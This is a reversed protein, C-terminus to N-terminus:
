YGYSVWFDNWYQLGLEESISKILDERLDAWKENLSASSGCFEVSDKWELFQEKRTAYIVLGKQLILNMVSDAKEPRVIVVFNYQSTQIRWGTNSSIRIWYEPHNKAIEVIIQRLSSFDGSYYFLLDVSWEQYYTKTEDIVGGIEQISDSVFNKTENDIEPFGTFTVMFGDLRKEFASKEAITGKTVRVEELYFESNTKHVEFIDIAGSMIIKFIYIGNKIRGLEIRATAPAIICPHLGPPDYIQYPIILWGVPKLNGIPIIDLLIQVGGHRYESATYITISGGTQYDWNYNLRYSFSIPRHVGHLQFLQSSLTNSGPLPFLTVPLLTLCGLLIVSFQPRAERWLQVVNTATITKAVSYIRFGIFIILVAIIIQFAIWLYYSVYINALDSLYNLLQLVGYLILLIAVAVCIQKLYKMAMERNPIASM